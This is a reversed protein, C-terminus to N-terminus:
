NQLYLIVVGHKTHRNHKSKQCWIVIRLILVREFAEDAYKLSYIHKQKSLIDINKTKSEIFM